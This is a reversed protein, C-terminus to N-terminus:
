SNYGRALRPWWLLMVKINWTLSLPIECSRVYQGLTHKLVGALAAPKLVHAWDPKTPARLDSLGTSLSTNLYCKNWGYKLRRMWFVLPEQCPVHIMLVVMIEKEKIFGTKWILYFLRREPAKQLASFYQESRKPLQQWAVFDVVFSMISTPPSLHIGLM